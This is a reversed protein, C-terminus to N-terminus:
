ARRAIAPWLSRLPVPLQDIVKAVEGEDLETWIVDFVGEAVTKGDMHFKPPLEQEIRACFEELTREATPKGSPHWGEFYLGRIIMPLQASLHVASEPPLRDRLAHLTARLSSYAHRRDEFHLREDVKKLWINAEQIAHDFSEHGSM